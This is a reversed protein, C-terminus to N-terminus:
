LTEANNELISTFEVAVFTTDDRIEPNSVTFEQWHRLLERNWELANKEVRRKLFNRMRRRGFPVGRGNQAEILGDTYLFLIEDGRLPVQSTFFKQTLNLGIPDSSGVLVEVKQNGRVLVPAPHGANAYYLTRTKLNAVCVLTTMLLTPEGSFHSDFVEQFGKLLVDPALRSFNLALTQSQIAACHIQMKKRLLEVVKSHGSLDGVCCVLLDGQAFASFWDGQFAHDHCSIACIRAHRSVQNSEILETLRRTPNPHPSDEVLPLQSVITGVLVSGNLSSLELANWFCPIIEGTRTLLPFSKQVCKKEVAMDLRFISFPDGLDSSGSLFKGLNMGVIESLEFGTAKSAAANARQVVGDTNLLFVCDFLLDFAKEFFQQQTLIGEALLALQKQAHETFSGPKEEPLLEFQSQSLLEITHLLRLSPSLIESVLIERMAFLEKRCFLLSAFMVGCAALLLGAKAKGSEGMGMFLVFFVCFLMAGGFLVPLRGLRRSFKELLIELTPKAPDLEM